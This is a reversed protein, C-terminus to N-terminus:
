ASIQHLFGNVDNASSNRAERSGYPRISTGRARRLDEVRADALLTQFASNYM